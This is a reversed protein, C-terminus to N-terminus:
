VFLEAVGTVMLLASCALGIWVVRRERARATEAGAVTMAFWGVMALAEVAPQVPGLLPPGWLDTVALTAALAVLFAIARRLPLPFPQSVAVLTLTPPASTSGLPCTSSTREAPRPGHTVQPRARSSPNSGGVEEEPPLREIWQAVRAPGLM